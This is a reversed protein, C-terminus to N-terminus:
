TALSLALQLLRFRAGCAVPHGSLGGPAALSQQVTRELVAAVASARTSHGTKEVQCVGSAVQHVKLLVPCRITRKIQPMLMAPMTRRLTSLPAQKGRDPHLM